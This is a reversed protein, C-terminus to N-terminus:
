MLKFSYISKGLAVNNLKWKFGLGIKCYAWIWVHEQHYKILNQGQLSINNWHHSWVYNLTKRVCIPPAFNNNPRQPRVDVFTAMSQGNFKGLGAWWQLEVNWCQASRKLTRWKRWIIWGLTFYPFTLNQRGIMCLFTRAELRTSVVNLIFIVYYM